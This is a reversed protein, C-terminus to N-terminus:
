YKPHILKCLSPPVSPKLIDKIKVLIAMNIDFRATSSFTSSIFKQTMSSFKSSPNEHVKPIMTKCKNIITMLQSILQLKSHKSITTTSDKHKNNRSWSIINQGINPDSRSKNSIAGTVSQKLQHIQFINHLQFDWNTSTVALKTNQQQYYVTEILSWQQYTPWKTGLSIWYRNFTIKEEKEKRKSRKYYRM